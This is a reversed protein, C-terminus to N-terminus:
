FRLASEFKIEPEREERTTTLFLEEEPSSWRFEGSLRFREGVNYFAGASVDEIDFRDDPYEEVGLTVGWRGGASQLEFTTTSSELQTQFPSEEMSLTFAEFWPTEIETDAVVAALASSEQDQAFASPACVFAVTATAVITASKACGWLAETWAVM